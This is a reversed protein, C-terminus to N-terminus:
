PRERIARHSTENCFNFVTNMDRAMALLAKAHKDKIRLKLTKVTEM